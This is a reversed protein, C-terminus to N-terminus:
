KEGIHAVIVADAVTTRDAALMRAIRDQLDPSGALAARLDPRIARSM